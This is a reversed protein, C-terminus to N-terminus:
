LLNLYKRNALATDTVAPLLHAFAAGAMDKV